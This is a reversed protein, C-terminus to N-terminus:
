SAFLPRWCASISTYSARLRNPPLRALKQPTEFGRIRRPLMDQVHHPREIQLLGLRLVVLALAHTRLALALALTLISRAMLAIVIAICISDNAQDLPTLQLCNAVDTDAVDYRRDLRAISLVCM